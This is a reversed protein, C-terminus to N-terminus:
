WTKWNTNRYWLQDSFYFWRSHYSYSTIMPIHATVTPAPQATYTSRNGGFRTSPCFDFPLCDPLFYRHSVLFALVSQFEWEREGIEVIRTVQLTLPYGEGCCGCMQVWFESFSYSFVRHPSLPAPLGATAQPWCILWSTHLSCCHRIRCWGESCLRMHKVEVKCIKHLHGKHGAWGPFPIRPFPTGSPYASMICFWWM